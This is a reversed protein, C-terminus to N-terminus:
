VHIGTYDANDKIKYYYKNSTRDIKYATRTNMLALFFHIKREELITLLTSLYLIQLPFYKEVGNKGQPGLM